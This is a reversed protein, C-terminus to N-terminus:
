LGSSKRLRSVQLKRLGLPNLKPTPPPVVGPFRRASVWWFGCNGVTKPEHYAILRRQVTV